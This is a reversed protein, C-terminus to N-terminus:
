YISKKGLYRFLQILATKWAEPMDSAVAVSGFSVVVIKKAKEAFSSFPQFDKEDIDSIFVEKFKKHEKTGIGGIFQIQNTHPYPYELLPDNNM